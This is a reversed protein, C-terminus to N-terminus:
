YSNVIEIVGGVEEDTLEAYMPLSVCHDALYEANPLDGKRYNLHSYANQLHCPVPYHFAPNIKNAILFEVFETRNEVTVVFLHFVSVTNEPQVQIKVKPNRINLIYNRAIEQRRGNWADLNRLKVTLSAAELGGMRYNYGIEDHIYRVESGHNRLKLVKKYYNENNTVVAGGEGWAGLNKGPYFSFCSMEGWTGIPQGNFLAGHAQSADEILFINKEKCIKSISSLDFPQGYLHVGIVAKTKSTIKRELDDPCIEWTDSKCDVFVPTASCYSVAWATAIFTNAPVLVEDGPGISLVRLALHLASTGSNVAACFNAHCYKAFASEFDSVFQGLSFANNEVVNEM